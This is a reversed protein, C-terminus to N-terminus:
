SCWGTASRWRPAPLLAQGEKVFGEDGGYAEDHFPVGALTGDSRYTWAHYPCRFTVRHGARSPVGAHRPARVHQVHRPHGRRPRPHRPLLRRGRQAGRLRGPAAGRLTHAVFVWARSFLREVELRHVEDDHYIHAPVLGEAIPGTLAEIDIM